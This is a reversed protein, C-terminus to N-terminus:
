LSETLGTGEKWRLECESFAASAKSKLVRLVVTGSAAPRSMAIRLAAFLRLAPGGAATEGEEGTVRSSRTAPNKFCAPGGSAAHRGALPEGTREVRTRAQNLFLAAAGSRRMPAVLRRLGSALVRSHAGGGSDGIGAALEVQPVLAAASDVVLLDVAGSAALRRVVELAEEASDPQALPMRDLEVGLRAAYGPDFCHEADVWAATEGSQQVHAVIQLALTTKGCAAAGFLEVISGRPLGGTAADLRQFGTSLAAPGDFQSRAVKQRITRERDAENM